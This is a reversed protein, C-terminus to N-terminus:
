PTPSAGKSLHTTKDCIITVEEINGFREFSPQLQEATMQMPVQVLAIPCM